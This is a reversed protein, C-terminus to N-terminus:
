FMVYLLSSYDFTNNMLLAEFEKGSIEYEDKKKKEEKGVRM